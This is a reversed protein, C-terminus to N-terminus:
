NKEAEKELVDEPDELGNLKTAVKSLEEIMKAGWGAVILPSVPTRQGDAEIRVMSSYLLQLQGGALDTIRINKRMIERGQADKEGTSQLTVEMTKNIAQLYKARSACTMECIEYDQGDIRVPERNLATTYELM